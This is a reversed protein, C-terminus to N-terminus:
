PDEIACMLGYKKKNGSYSFVPKSKDTDGGYIDDEAKMKVIAWIIGCQINAL